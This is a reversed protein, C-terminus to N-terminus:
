SWSKQLIPIGLGLMITKCSNEEYLALLYHLSPEWLIGM